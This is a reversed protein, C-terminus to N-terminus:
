ERKQAPVEALRDISAAIAQGAEAIRELARHCDAQQYLADAIRGLV